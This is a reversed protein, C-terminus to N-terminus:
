LIHFEVKLESVFAAPGQAHQARIHNPSTAHLSQLWGLGQAKQVHMCAHMNLFFIIHQAREFKSHSCVSDVTTLCLLCFFITCLHVHLVPAGQVELYVQLDLCIFTQVKGDFAWICKRTTQFLSPVLIKRLPLQIM